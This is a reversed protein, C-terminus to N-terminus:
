RTPCVGVWVELGASRRMEALTMRPAARSLLRSRPGATTLANRKLVLPVFNETKACGASLPPVGSTMWTRARGPELPAPDRLAVICTM